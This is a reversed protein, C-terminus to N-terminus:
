GQSADDGGHQMLKSKSNMVIGDDKALMGVYRKDANRVVGM